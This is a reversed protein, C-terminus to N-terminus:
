TAVSHTDNVSRMSATASAQRNEQRRQRQRQRKKSKNKSKSNLVNSTTDIAKTMVMM